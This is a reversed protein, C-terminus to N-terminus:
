IIGFALFVNLFLFAKIWKKQLLHLPKLAEAVAYFWSSLAQRSISFGDRVFSEVQRYLPTHELFRRIMVHALLSADVKTILLKEPLDMKAVGLESGMGYVPQIIVVKKYIKEFALYEYRNEDIVTFPKSTIPDIKECAPLDVRIIEEPIDKPFVLNNTSPAKQKKDSDKKKQANSKRCSADGSKRRSSSKESKKMNLLNTLEGVQNLLKKLSENQIEIQKSQQQIVETLAIIQDAQKKELETMCFYLM